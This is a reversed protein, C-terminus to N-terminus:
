GESLGWCVVACRLVACCLMAGRCLVAVARVPVRQIPTILLSSLGLGKAQPAARANREFNQFRTYASDSLVLKLLENADDKPPTQPV